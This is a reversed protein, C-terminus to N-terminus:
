TAFVVTQYQIAQPLNSWGQDSSSGWCYSAGSEDIACTFNSGAQVELWTKGEPHTVESATLDLPAVEPPGSVGLGLQGEDNQGFCHLKGKITLACLHRQGISVQSWTGGQVPSAFKQWGGFPEITGDALVRGGWCDLELLGSNM